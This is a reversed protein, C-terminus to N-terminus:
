VSSLPLLFWTLGSGILPIFLFDERLWSRWATIAVDRRHVVVAHIFVSVRSYLDGVLRRSEGLGCSRAAFYDEQTVPGLPGLRSVRGWQLLLEVSRSLSVGHRVIGDLVDLIAKLRRRLDLLPGASSDRKLHVDDGEGADANKKFQFSLFAASVYLVSVLLGGVWSLVGIRCQSGAFRYADALAAEAAGSWVLWAPSIDGADLSEDLLLADQRSM